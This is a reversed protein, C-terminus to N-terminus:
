ATINSSSSSDEESNMKTKLVSMETCPQKVATFFKNICPITSKKKICEEKMYHFSANRKVNQLFCFIRIFQIQLTNIFVKGSYKNAYYQRGRENQIRLFFGVGTM